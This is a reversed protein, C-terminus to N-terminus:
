TTRNGNKENKLYNNQMEETIDASANIIYWMERLKDKMAYPLTDFKKMCQCNSPFWIVPHKSWFECIYRKNLLTQDTKIEEFGEIKSARWNYVVEQTDIDHIKFFDNHKKTQLEEEYLDYQAKTIPIRKIEGRDWQKVLILHTRQNKTLM